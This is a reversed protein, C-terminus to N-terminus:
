IQRFAEVWARCLESRVIDGTSFRCIAAPIHFQEIMSVLTSLGSAGDIDTQELDGSIVVQADGIRTVFLKLQDLRCNQAEDLIVITGEGFSAGRLFQFPAYELKGSRLWSEVGQRGIQREVAETVPRTWPGFKENIGGPLFGLSESIDSSIMPRTVIIREAHNDMVQQAAWSAAAYTKGTGAPGIAVVMQYSDLAELYRRQAENRPRLPTRKQRPEPPPEPPDVRERRRARKEARREQRFVRNRM